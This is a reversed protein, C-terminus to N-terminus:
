ASRCTFFLLPNVYWVPFLIHFRRLLFFFFNFFVNGKPSLLFPLIHVTSFPPPAPPLLSLHLSSRPYLTPPLFLSLFPSAFKSLLAGGSSVFSSSVFQSLTDSTSFFLSAGPHFTPNLYSLTSLAYLPSSLAALISSSLTCCLYVPSKYLPPGVYGSQYVVFM